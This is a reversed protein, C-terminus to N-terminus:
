KKCDKKHFAWDNKQCEKSCYRTVNCRACYKLEEVMYDKLCADCPAGTLGLGIKVTMKLRKFCDCPLHKALVLIVGRKNGVRDQYRTFKGVNKEVMASTGEGRQLPSWTQVYRLFLALNIAAAGDETMCENTLFDTASFAFLHKCFPVAANTSFLHPYLTAFRDKCDQFPSFQESNRASYDYKTM